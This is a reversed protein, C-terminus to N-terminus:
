RSAPKVFERAVADVVADLDEEPHDAMLSIQLWNREALYRSEFNLLIGQSELRRGAELSSAGEPFPITFIAPSSDAAPLLVPVQRVALRARVRRSHAEIRAQFAGSRRDELAAELAALLNSSGSFPVGGEAAYRGLDLYPPLPPEARPIPGGHFVLSLGTFAGLGKGAVGSAFAVGSLHVPAVGLSSICDLALAAGHAACAAKFEALPNLRGTSTECHVAWLWACGGERLARAVEAPEFAAGWPKRSVAYSLGAGEAHRVLREGFEGNVLILGRGARRSLQAAVLDNALTGTGAVVQVDGARTMGLLMAKVRALRASYAPSRHSEAPLALAEVVRPAHAVPGPLLNRIRAPPEATAEGTRQPLVGLKRNLTARDIRMPQYWAGPGGVRPGFAEFGFKAYLAENEPRGSILGIDYDMELCRALMARMLLGFAPGRRREPRVSLLRIEVARAGPPLWADLDPLKADLSFPRQDRLTVMGILEPGDMCIFYTNQDHFKDTLTGVANPAHQPIERVFTDYNLKGILEFESPHDAIKVLLAM